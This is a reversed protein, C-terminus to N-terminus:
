KHLKIRTYVKSVLAEQKDTISNVNKIGEQFTASMNKYNEILNIICSPM